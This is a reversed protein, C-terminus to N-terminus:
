NIRTASTYQSPKSTPSSNTPILKILRILPDIRYRLREPIKSKFQLIGEILRDKEINGKTIKYKTLLDELNKTNKIFNNFEIKNKFLIDRLWHFQRDIYNGDIKQTKIMNKVIEFPNKYRDDWETGKISSEYFSDIRQFLSRNTENTNMFENVREEQAIDRLENETKNLIPLYNSIQQEITQMKNLQSLQNKVDPEKTEQEEILNYMKRINLKENESLVIRQGM